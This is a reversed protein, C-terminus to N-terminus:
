NYFEEDVGLVDEYLVYANMEHTRKGFTRLWPRLDKSLLSGVDM